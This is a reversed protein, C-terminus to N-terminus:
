SRIGLAAIFHGSLYRSPWREMREALLLSSLLRESGAPRGLRGLEAVLFRPAHLIATTDAVLFGNAALMRRLRRPGCTWGSDYPFRRIVRATRRPLANRLAIVPNIPNDLTILLRGGPRIVRGLESLAVAVEQESALHDLTSNSVVADFSGAEFPLRNVSAVEVELGPHRGGAAAVVQPSIDVGVVRAARARLVPYLGPSVFEDFLDTKLM